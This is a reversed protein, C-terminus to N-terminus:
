RGSDGFPINPFVPEGFYIYAFKVSYLDVVSINGNSIDQMLLYNNGVGVLFGYRDETTDSGILQEVRMYRGIQTRLFGNMYQVSDYDITQEYEPPVLPNSPVSFSPSQQGTNELSNVYDTMNQYILPISATNSQFAANPQMAVNPQMTANPQMAANPQQAANQGIYSPTPNGQPMAARPQSTTDVAVPAMTREPEASAAQWTSTATPEAEPAASSISAATPIAVHAAAVESVMTHATVEPASPQAAAVTEQAAEYVPEDSAPVHAAEYVPEASAAVHATPEFEIKDGIQIQGKRIMRPTIVNSNCPAM